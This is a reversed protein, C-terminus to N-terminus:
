NIGREKKIKDYAENLKQFKENATKQFDEGLYSVKDPHYEVALRRYAKKIEDNTAEKEIGLVKYASDSDQYYMAKISRFDNQSIGMCDAMHEIVRLENIHIHGDALSVNFLFQLLTLRSSYDLNYNIQYCVDDVPIDRELIDRLMHLAERADNEGFQRVLYQKVFDLESKMIKGDAKIVAAILVLLSAVFDGVTTPGEIAVKTKTDNVTEIVAGIGFGVIGGLPGFLAWGVGGALWKGFKGM